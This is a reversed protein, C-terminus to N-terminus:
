DTIKIRSAKFTPVPSGDEVERWHKPNALCAKLVATDAGALATAVDDGTLRKGNEYVATRKYVLAIGDSGALQLAQKALSRPVSCIQEVAIPLERGDVGDISTDLTLTRRYFARTFKPAASEESGGAPQARDEQAMVCNKAPPADDGAAVAPAAPPEGTQPVPRLWPFWPNRPDVSPLEDCKDTDPCSRLLTVSPVGRRWHLDLLVSASNNSYNSERLRRDANARHLLVYRGRPLGSLPLSQGELYPMYNDGYGPSIGETVTLRNPERLGCGGTYYPQPPTAPVPMSTVRYRDGLCFGTKQDRVVAGRKGARRL